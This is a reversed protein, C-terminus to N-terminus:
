VSVNNVGWNTMKSIPEKSRSKGACMSILDSRSRALKGPRASSSILHYIRNDIM